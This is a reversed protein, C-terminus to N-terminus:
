KHITHRRNHLDRTQQAVPLILFVPLVVVVVQHLPDMLVTVTAMPKFVCVILM